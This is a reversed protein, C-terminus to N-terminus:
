KEFVYKKKKALERVASIIVSDLTDKSGSTEKMKKQIYEERQINLKNIKAQIEAREQAKKEVYKKREDKSMKQMESPLEEEDVDDISKGKKKADVLDWSENSYQSKSKFVARQTVSETSMSAANSDQVEQRALNKKGSSGYAVYTKNIEEGYKAIDGDYPTEIVKVVKNQDIVMYKGDSLDAGDKWKGSVGEDYSGCHITNVVISKTISQKCSDKYDIKGQTFPENGAIFILKLDNKDSSWKLTEVANKIVWGCYEDGGNTTLAFLEESIKDLDTTLPVVLRIFGSEKNLSDKGYEYLAVELDPAKGDKKATALENVIKWLQAKAQNILGDMSNSTDLLIALQIVPKKDAFLNISLLLAILIFLIKMKEESIDFLVNM